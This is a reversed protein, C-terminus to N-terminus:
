RGCNGASMRSGCGEPTTSPWGGLTECGTRGCRAAPERCASSRTTSPSRIPAPRSTGRPQSPVITSTSGCCRRSSIRSRSGRELRMPLPPTKPTEPPSTSCGTPALSSAAATTGGRCGLSSSSKALWISRRRIPPRSPSGPFAHGKLSSRSSPTSSSASGTKPLAPTSPSASSMISGRSRRWIASWIPPPSM